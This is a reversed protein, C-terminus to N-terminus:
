LSVLGLCGVVLILGVWSLRHGFHSQSLVIWSWFSVLELWGMVLILCCIVLHSWSVVVWSWFAVLECCGMVLILCGICITGGRQSIMPSNVHVVVESYRAEAIVWSM